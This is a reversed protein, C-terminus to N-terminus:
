LRPQCHGGSGGILLSCRYGAKSPAVLRAAEPSALSAISGVSAEVPILRGQM